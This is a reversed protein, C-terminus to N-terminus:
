ISVYAGVKNLCIGGNKCPNTACNDILTDCLAGTYGFNCVCTFSNVGDLCVGQKCPSSACENSNVQCSYYIHYIHYPNNLGEYSKRFSV